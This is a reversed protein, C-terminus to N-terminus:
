TWDSASSTESASCRPNIPACSRGAAPNRALRASARGASRGRAGVAIPARGQGKTRARVLPCYGRADPRGLSRGCGSRLVRERAIGSVDAAVSWREHVGGHTQNRDDVVVGAHARGDLPQQLRAAICRDCECRGLFKECLATTSPAMPRTRSMWRPPMDPMSNRRRRGAAPDVSGTTNMVAWSSSAVRSSASAARSHRSGACATRRSISQHRRQFPAPLARM